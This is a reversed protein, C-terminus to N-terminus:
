YKIQKPITRKQAGSVIQTSSILEEDTLRIALAM